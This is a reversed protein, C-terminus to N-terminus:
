AAEIYAVYINIKGATLANTGITITIKATGGLQGVLARGMTVDGVANLPAASFLQSALFMDPDDALYGGSTASVDIGITITPDSSGSTLATETVIFSQSADILAYKPFNETINTGLSITSVAGGNVAFDYTFKKFRIGGMGGWSRVGAATSTLVMGDTSPNGLGPEFYDSNVKKVGDQWAGNIYRTTIEVPNSAAGSAEDYTLDKGFITVKNTGSTTDTRTWASRWIAKYSDGEKAEGYPKEVTYSNATVVTGSFDYVSSDQGSQIRRVGGDSLSGVSDGVTTTGGGSAVAVVTTGEVPVVVGADTLTKRSIVSNPARNIEIWLGATADWMLTLSSKDYNTDQYKRQSEPSATSFTKSNELCINQSTAGVEANEISHDNITIARSTSTGVIILIDRDSVQENTEVIRYLNDAPTNSETDIKLVQINGRREYTYIGSAISDLTASVALDNADPYIATKYGNTVYPTIDLADAPVTGEAGSADSLFYKYASATGDLEQNTYGYTTSEYVLARNQAAHELLIRRIDTTNQLNALIGNSSGKAGDGDCIYIKYTSQTGLNSLIPTAM